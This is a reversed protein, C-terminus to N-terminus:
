KQLEVAATKTPAKATPDIQADPNLMMDLTFKRVKDNDVAYQDVIVLNVDTLLKSRSLKNIFQAVQVDTQAVGTLRLAVDYVKAQPVAPTVSGAAKNAKAELEAKKQEFPTKGATSPPPASRVRSELSLDILSVGAPMSNTFEALLYSRPVRELLSATVEAQHAMKRQKERLEKVQDIKKAFEAYERAVGDHHAVVDRTARESLTFVAGIVGLVILFLTACIVNTRRQAKRALYDDPLFSLQNPASM